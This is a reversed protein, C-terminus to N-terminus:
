GDVGFRKRGLQGKDTIFGAGLSRSSRGRGQEWMTGEEVKVM